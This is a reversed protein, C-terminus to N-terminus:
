LQWLGLPMCRPGRAVSRLPWLGLQSQSSFPRLCSWVGSMVRPWLDRGCAVSPPISAAHGDCEDSGDDKGYDPAGNCALSAVAAGLTALVSWGAPQVCPWASLVSWAMRQSGRALGALTGGADGLAGRCGFAIMAGGVGALAGGLRYAHPLLSPGSM